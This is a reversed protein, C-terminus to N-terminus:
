YWNAFRSETWACWPPVNCVRWLFAKCAVHDESCPLGSLFSAATIRGSASPKYTCTSRCFCRSVCPQPTLIETGRYVGFFLWFPCFQLLTVMGFLTGSAQVWGSFVPYLKLGKAVDTLSTDKDEGAGGDVGLSWASFGDPWGNAGFLWSESPWLCAWQDGWASAGIRFHEECFFPGGRANCCTALGDWADFFHFADALPGFPALGQFQVTAPVTLSKLLATYVLRENLLPM